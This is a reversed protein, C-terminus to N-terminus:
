RPESRQRSGRRFAKLQLETYQACQGPSARTNRKAVGAGTAGHCSACAALGEAAPMAVTCNKPWATRHGKNTAVGPKAQQKAYYVAVSRMDEPSLPSVMAFMVPNKASPRSARRRSSILSSSICTSLFRRPSSRTRPPPIVPRDAGHCTLVACRPPWPRAKAPPSNAPPSQPAPPGSSASRRLSGPLLRPPSPWNCACAAPLALARKM